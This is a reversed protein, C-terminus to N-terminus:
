RASVSAILRGLEDHVEAEDHVTEAVLEHLRKRWRDRL